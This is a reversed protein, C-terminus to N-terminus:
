FPIEDPDYDPPARWVDEVREVMRGKLNSAIRVRTVTVPEYAQKVKVYLSPSEYPDYRPVQARATYSGIFVGVGLQDLQKLQESIAVMQALREALPMPDSRFKEEDWPNPCLKELDSAFAVLASLSEPTPEIDCEVRASFARQLLDLVDKGSMTLNLVVANDESIDGAMEAQEPPSRKLDPVSVRLASALGALTDLSGRGEEARQVTRRDVGAAGALHDQTMGFRERMEKIKSGDCEM